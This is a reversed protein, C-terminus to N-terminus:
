GDAEPRPLFLRGVELEVAEFPAVRATAADDFSGADIWRGGELAFAELTRAAPDVIWYFPVGAEAYLRKKLVRDRAEYRESIVECIWDPALRFPRVDPEPLRERRYGLVDPRVVDHRALELDAEVFIWWGGPGGRGDDDHFPGGVYRGLARQVNLHRPRPAPLVELQGSLVEARVDSSLALLDDYTALRRAAEM